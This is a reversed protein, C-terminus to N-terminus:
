MRELYRIDPLKITHGTIILDANKINNYDALKKALSPNGYYKRCIASLTDGRKILYNQTGVHVKEASRSKNGTKNKKVTTLERYPVMSISAYVDGTGDKEGYTIAEILVKINVMTNSVIFRLINHNDCWTEIKKVYEYPELLTGPQNFAYEHAPFMCEINIASLSSYGPIKVDGLLHINITEINIGHTINFNSPTVPLVLEINKSLDKLIFKRM